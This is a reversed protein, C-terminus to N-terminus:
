LALMSYLSCPISRGYVKKRLDPEKMLNKLLTRSWGARELLGTQTLMEEAASKPAKAIATM